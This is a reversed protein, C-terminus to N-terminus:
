LFAQMCWSFYIIVSPLRNEFVEKIEFKAMAVPLGLIDIKTVPHDIEFVICGFESFFLSEFKTTQFICILYM